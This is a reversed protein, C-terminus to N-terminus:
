EENKILRAAIVSWDVTYAVMNTEKIEIRTLTMEQPDTNLKLLARIRAISGDMTRYVATEPTGGRRELLFFQNEEITFGETM